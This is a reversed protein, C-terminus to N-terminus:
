VNEWYSHTGVCVREPLQITAVPGHTLDDANFVLCSSSDENMDSVITVVFGGDERGNTRAPVVPSESAYVGTPFEYAQREGTKVNLRTVGNFLFWGPKTTMEWVYHYPKGAVDPNIMGFESVLDDLPHESVSGTQMNFRWRYARAGVSHIDLMRYPILNEPLDVNVAKSPDQRYGDLIVDDGEEYANIWHLVYTPEAEFWRIDRVQGRRPKADVDM